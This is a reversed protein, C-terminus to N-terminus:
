SSFIRLLVRDNFLKSTNINLIYICLSLMEKFSVLKSNSIKHWFTLKGRNKFVWQWERNKFIWHWIKGAHAKLKYLDVERESSQSNVKKNACSAPSHIENILGSFKQQEQFSFIPILKSMLVHCIAATHLIKPANKDKFNKEGQEWPAAFEHASLSIDANIARM